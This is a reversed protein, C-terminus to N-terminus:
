LFGPGRGRNCLDPIVFRPSPGGLGQYRKNRRLQRRLRDAIDRLAANVQNDTGAPDLECSILQPLTAALFDRLRQRFAEEEQTWEFDMPGRMGQRVPIRYKLAARRSLARLRPPVAFM